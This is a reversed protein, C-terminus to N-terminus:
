RTGSNFWNVEMCRRLSLRARHMIIWYNSASLNFVERIEKSDISELERFRFVNEVKSPLNNLCKELVKYFEKSELAEDPPMNWRAPRFKKNWFGSWGDNRKFFQDTGMRELDTIDFTVEKSHKHYYDVIKHKLIATLWTRESSRGEYSELSKMAALYTEQVLDEALSEDQVKFLAYRFLYDGHTDVLLSPDIKEVM